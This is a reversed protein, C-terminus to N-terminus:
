NATRENKELKIERKLNPSTEATNARLQLVAEKIM